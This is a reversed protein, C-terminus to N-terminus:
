QQGTSLLHHLHPPEHGLALACAQGRTETTTRTNGGLDKLRTKPM